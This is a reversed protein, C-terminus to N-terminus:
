RGLAYIVCSGGKRRGSARISGFFSVSGGISSAASLRVSSVRRRMNDEGGAGNVGFAFFRTLFFYVPRDRGTLDKM